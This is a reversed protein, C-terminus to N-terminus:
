IIRGFSICFIGFNVKILYFLKVLVTEDVNVRSLLLGRFECPREAFLSKASQYTSHQRSAAVRIQDPQVNRLFVCLGATAGRFSSVKFGGRGRGFM